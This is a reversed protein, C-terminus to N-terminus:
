EIRNTENKKKKQKYKERVRESLTRSPSRKLVDDDCPKQNPLALSFFDGHILVLSIAVGNYWGM